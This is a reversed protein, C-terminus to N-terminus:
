MYNRFGFKRTARVPPCAGLASSHPAVRALILGGKNARKELARVPGLGKCVSSTRTNVLGVCNRVGIVAGAVAVVSSEIAGALELEKCASSTRTSVHGACAGAIKHM